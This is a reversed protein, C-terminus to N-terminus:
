MLNIENEILFKRIQSLSGSLKKFICVKFNTDYICSLILEGIKLIYLTNELSYPIKDNYNINVFKNGNSYLYLSALDNGSRTNQYREKLLNEVKNAIKLVMIYRQHLESSFQYAKQKKTKEMLYIFFVTLVVFVHFLMQSHICNNSVEFTDTFKIDMMKEFMSTSLTNEFESLLGENKDNLNMVSLNLQDDILDSEGDNGIRSKMLILKLIVICCDVIRIFDYESVDDIRALFQSFNKNLEEFNRLWSQEKVYKFDILSNIKLFNVLLAYDIKEMERQNKSSATDQLTPNFSGFIASMETNMNLTKIFGTLNDMILFVDINKMEHYQKLEFIGHVLSIFGLQGVDHLKKVIAENPHHNKDSFKAVEILLDKFLIKDDDQKSYDLISKRLNHNTAHEQFSHYSKFSWIFEDNRTPITLYNLDHMSLTMPVNYMMLLFNTLRYITLIIRIQSQRNINNRFRLEENANYNTSSFLSQNQETNPVENTNYEEEEEESISFLIHRNSKISSKVLSNLANLQRIVIYVNNENESFLGYIVSLTLSQILWLPNVAELSGNSASSLSSKRSELYIHITRRSAEYLHESDNKNNVLLAGMTAILLPLCVRASENSPDENSTMNMIEQENLKSVHIFPLHTLFLDVFKVAYYELNENSPIVPSMIGSIPYKTLAKNILNRINNTFLKNKSYVSNKLSNKRSFNSNEINMLQSQNLYIGDNASPQANTNLFQPKQALLQSNQRGFLGHNNPSMTNQPSNTDVGGSSVSPSDGYFSYGNPMFKSDVDYHTTLEDLQNIFDFNFNHSGNASGSQNGGRSNILTHVDELEESDQKTPELPNHMKFHMDSNSMMSEPIDYFSYGYENLGHHGNNAASNTTSPTIESNSMTAGPMMNHFGSLSDFTNISPTSILSDSRVNADHNHLKHASDTDLIMSNTSNNRLSANDNPNDLMGPITSINSLLSLEDAISSPLLQPTSFEVNDAGPYYDNFEPIALAYNAGSQASFSAGRHRKDRRRGFVQRQLSSTGEKLSGQRSMAPVGSSSFLDLNFQVDGEGVSTHRRLGNVPSIDAGNTPSGNSGAKPHHVDRTGDFSSLKLDRPPTEKLPSKHILSDPSEDGNEYEGPTPRKISKRRLRTIADDCGAHLKQAHRLLLDRRSFRRQCVGCSFPKEKTHSREHRRLHELRAFARTCVQCVFLRPKGSPTTGYATLELPIEKSKKTSVTERVSGM